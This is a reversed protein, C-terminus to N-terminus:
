GGTNYCFFQLSIRFTKKSNQKSCTPSLWDFQESFLELTWYRLMVKKWATNSSTLTQQMWTELHHRQHMKCSGSKKIKWRVKVLIIKCVTQSQKHKQKQTSKWDIKQNILKSNKQSSFSGNEDFIFIVSFCKIRHFVVQFDRGLMQWKKSGKIQPLGRFKM